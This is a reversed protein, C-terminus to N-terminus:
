LGRYMLNTPKLYQVAYKSYNIGSSGFSMSTGNISYSTVNEPMDATNYLHDAQSCVAKKICNQQFVSLNDWGIAQIRHFTLQDISDSAKQLYSDLVADPITGKYDDKYYTTDAYGV